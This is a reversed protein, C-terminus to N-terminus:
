MVDRLQNPPSHSRMFFFYTSFTSYFKEQSAEETKSLMSKSFIQLILLPGKERKGINNDNKLRCLKNFQAYFLIANRNQSLITCTSKHMYSDRCAYKGSCIDFTFARATIKTMWDVSDALNERWKTTNVNEDAEHKDLARRLATSGRRPEILVLIDREWAFVCRSKQSFRTKYANLRAYLIQFKKAFYAM